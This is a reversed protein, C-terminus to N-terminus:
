ITGVSDIRSQKTEKWPKGKKSAIRFEGKTQQGGWEEGSKARRDLSSDLVRRLLFHIFRPCNAILPFTDIKEIISPFLVAM